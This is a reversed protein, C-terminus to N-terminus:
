AQLVRRGYLGKRGGRGPGARGSRHRLHRIRRALPRVKPEKTKLRTVQGSRTPVPPPGYAASNERLVQDLIDEEDSPDSAGAPRGGAEIRGTTGGLFLGLTLFAALGRSPSTAM